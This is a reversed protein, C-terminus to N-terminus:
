RLGLPQRAAAVLLRTYPHQSDAFLEGPPGQEVIRGDQLVIVRHAIREAMALDHTIFLYSVGDAAQLGRLLDVVSAAVSADLGSVIEDCIILRPSAALAAAIATRQRQGGSLHRPLRTALAPALEVRDMLERALETSATRTLGLHLRAPRAIIDLVHHRPNLATDPHQLVLQISQRQHQSRDEVRAPLPQDGLTLLGATPALIGALSRALTSKGSGSEGVLAVTEGVRIDLSVDSIVAPVNRDSRRKRRYRVTLDRIRLLDTSAPELATPGTANVRTLAQTYPHEPSGLVATASSHEVVSGAYMVAISDCLRALVGLDHSVCVIATTNDRLESLLELIEAKTTADLGTTPEDLVLVDPSGCLALALAVRQQQGGSLQHPYRQMLEDPRPLRVKGLLEVGYAWADDSDMTSHTRVTEIILRGVRMTQTLAKAPSQPMYALKRGWLARLVTTKAGLLNEGRFSVSGATVVGNSALSGLLALALTSKGSGSEGALGLSRGARVDVSVDRVAPTLVGAADAYSISLNLAQLIM